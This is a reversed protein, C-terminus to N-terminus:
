RRQDAAADTPEEYPGSGHRAFFRLALGPDLIDDIAHGRGAIIELMVPRGLRALRAYLRRSQAAPVRTDASGHVLLIPSDIAPAAALVDRHRWGRPGGCEDHLYDRIGDADTQRGWSAPHTVPAFAATARVPAQRAAMLLAVQGGQSYGMLYLRDAAVEPRARLWDLAALMDDVQRGACDDRGGSPRWGRLTPVLVHFGATRLRDAFPALTAAPYDHPWHWGHLLLIAPAPTTGGARYLDAHLTLDALPIRVSDAVAGRGRDGAHSGLGVLGGLCAAALVGLSWWARM